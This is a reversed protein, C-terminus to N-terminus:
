LVTIDTNSFNLGADITAIVVADSGGVGDSDFLVEGTDAEYGFRHAVESANEGEFFARSSVVGGSLDGPFLAGVVLIEDTAVEFDTITDGGEDPSLYLFTDSGGGGTLNDAGASGTMFDDGTGGNITDNGNGGTLSNNNGDGRLNDDFRSGIINEIGIITDIDGYGDFARGNTATSWLDPGLRVDVGAPDFQYVVTDIGEGGDIVDDGAKGEIADNGGLGEILDDADTGTIGDNGSTGANVPNLSNTVVPNEAPPTDIAEVTVVLDNDQQILELDLSDTDFSNVRSEATALLDANINLSSEGDILTYSGLDLGSLDGFEITGSNLNVNEIVTLLTNGPQLLELTGGDLNFGAEVRFGEPRFIGSDITLFSGDQKFTGSGTLTGGNNNFNNFITGDNDVIGRNNFFIDGLNILRAGSKINIRGENNFLGQNQNFLRGSVDIVGGSNNNFTSLDNTIVGGSRITIQSNNNFTGQNLNALIGSNDIAGGSQNNFTSFNDIQGGSNTTIQGENNFSGQNQNFLRNSIDIIGGSRNNFTSLDNTIVSDSNTTIQGENNFTSQRQNVLIGSNDLLGSNNFISINDGNSQNTLFVSDRIITTGNNDFTSGFNNIEAELIVEGNNLIDNGDTRFFETNTVSQGANITFPIAM